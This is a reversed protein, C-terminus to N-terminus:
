VEFADLVDGASGKAWEETQAAIKLVLTAPENETAEGPRNFLDEEDRAQDAGTARGCRRELHGLIHQRRDSPQITRFASSRHSAALPKHRVGRRGIITEAGRCSRRQESYQAQGWEEWTSVVVHAFKVM